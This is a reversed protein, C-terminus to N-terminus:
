PMYQIGIECGIPKAGGAGGYCRDPRGPGGNLFDYAAGGFLRDIGPGGFLRDRGGGGVGIDGGPGLRATDPGSGGTFVSDGAGFSVRNTGGRVTVKSNGDGLAVTSGGTGLEIKSNGAGVSVTNAGNGLTIKQNGDGASVQNSGDGGTLQNNGDGLSAVNDGGGLEVRDSGGDDEDVVEDDGDGGIFVDNDGGLQVSVKPPKGSAVTLYSVVKDKGTGAYVYIGAVFLATCRVEKYPPGPGVARCGPPLPELVDHTIVYEGSQLDYAVTIEDSTKGQDGHVVFVDGKSLGNAEITITQFASATPPILALAVVVAVTARM